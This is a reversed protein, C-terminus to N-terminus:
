DMRRRVRVKAGMPPVHNPGAWFCEPRGKGEERGVLEVEYRTL